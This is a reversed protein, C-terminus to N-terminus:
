SKYFGNQGDWTRLRKPGEDNDVVISTDSINQCFSWGWYSGNEGSKVMFSVVTLRESEVSSTLASIPLILQKYVYVVNASETPDQKTFQRWGGTSAQIMQPFSKVVFLLSRPSFSCM